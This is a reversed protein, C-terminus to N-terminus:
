ERRLIPLEAVVRGRRQRWKETELLFSRLPLLSSSESIASLYNPSLEASESVMEMEGEEDREESDNLLSATLRKQGIPSLSDFGFGVSAVLLSKM